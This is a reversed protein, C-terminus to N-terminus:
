LVLISAVFSKDSTFLLHVVVTVSKVDKKESVMYAFYGIGLGFVCVDGSMKEIHPKMTEIENPKIAMWEVGDEFVTPFSFEETFYGIKPIERMNDLVDIDDYIFCEYADYSQYGLDWNGM